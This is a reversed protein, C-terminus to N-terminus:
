FRWSLSGGLKSRTRDYADDREKFSFFQGRFHRCAHRGNMQQVDLIQDFSASDSQVACVGNYVVENPTAVVRLVVPSYFDHALLATLGTGVPHYNRPRWVYNTETASLNKRYNKAPPRALFLRM